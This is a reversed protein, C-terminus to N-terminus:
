VSCLLRADSIVLCRTAVCSEPSRRGQCYFEAFMEIQQEHHLKDLYGYMQMAFNEVSDPFVWFHSEEKYGDIDKAREGILCIYDESNNRKGFSIVHTGILSDFDFAPFTFLHASGSDLSPLCIDTWYDPTNAIPKSQAHYTVTKIAKLVKLRFSSPDQHNPIERAIEPHKSINIVRDRIDGFNDIAKNALEEQQGSGNKFKGGPVTKILKEAAQYLTFDDFLKWSRRSAESYDFPVFSNGFNALNTYKGLVAFLVYNHKGSNADEYFKDAKAKVAMLDSTEEAKVTLGSGSASGKDPGTSEVITIKVSSSRKISSVADEVEQTVKGQVGYMTFAMEASQKLERTESSNRATISVRAFFHGGRVFDTIFRDGYTENPNETGIKNFSHRDGVSVQQQVLVEVQYTLTSSEFQMGTLKQDNPHHVNMCVESRDLISVNVNGSQGWGSVAAGASIKMSKALKEYDEVLESTYERRFPNGPKESPQITVADKVCLQQLYTNYGQGQQMGSIYPVVEGM